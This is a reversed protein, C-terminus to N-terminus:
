VKYKVIVTIVKIIPKPKQHVRTRSCSTQLSKKKKFSM